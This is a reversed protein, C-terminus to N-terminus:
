PPNTDEKPNWSGMPPYSVKSLQHKVEIGWGDEGFQMVVGEDEAHKEEAHKEEAHKEEAHKEEAHKEEAHKEEAYV